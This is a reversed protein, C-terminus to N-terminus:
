CCLRTQDEDGSPESDAREGDADTGADGEERAGDALPRGPAQAQEDAGAAASEPAAEADDGADVDDPLDTGDTADLVQAPNGAVTEGPPVDDVVVAGAGVTAGDGITIDGVLTANAGLTVGDGVTPHRKVPEPADGGLTVGHFMHVDDGVEATEGIVVGMGHDIFVRRGLDAGPHIEVGTVARTLQSLARALLPHDAAWLRHCLRHAWVAHLGPYLLAEAHSKAAPDSRVATRVDERLRDLLRTFM